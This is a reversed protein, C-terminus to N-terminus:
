TNHVNINSINITNHYISTHSAIKFIDKYIAFLIHYTKKCCIKYKWNASIYYFVINHTNKNYVTNYNASKHAMSM